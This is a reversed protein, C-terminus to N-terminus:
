ISAKGFPKFPFIRWFIQVIVITQSIHVLLGIVRYSAYSLFLLNFDSIASHNSCADWHCSMYQWSRSIMFEFDMQTSSPTCLVETRLRVQFLFLNYISKCVCFAKMYQYCQYIFHKRQLLVHIWSLFSCYLIEGLVHVEIYDDPLHLDDVYRQLDTPDGSDPGGLLVVLTHDTNTRAGSLTSFMSTKAIDLAPGIDRSGRAGSFALADIRSLFYLMWDTLQTLTKFEWSDSSYTTIDRPYHKLSTPGVAEVVWKQKHQVMYIIETSLTFLYTLPDHVLLFTMQMMVTKLVHLPVLFVGLPQKLFELRNCSYGYNCNIDHGHTASRRLLDLHM